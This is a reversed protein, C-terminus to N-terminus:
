LFGLLQLKVSKRGRWLCPLARMHDGGHERATPPGACKSRAYAKSIPEVEILLFYSRCIEKDQLGQLAAFVFSMNRSSVALAALFFHIIDFPLLAFWHPKLHPYISGLKCAVSLLRYDESLPPRYIRRHGSVFSCITFSHM